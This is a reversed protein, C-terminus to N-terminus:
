EEKRIPLALVFCAIMCIVFGDDLENGIWALPLNLLLLILGYKIGISQLSSEDEAEDVHMPALEPQGFWKGVAENSAKDSRTWTMEQESWERSLRQQGSANQYESLLLSDGLKARWPFAGAAYVISARYDPYARSYTKNDLVAYDARLSDVWCDMLSGIFWGESSEVLWRFGKDVNYLLYETWRSADEDDTQWVLAGTVTWPLREITATGGLELTLGPAEEARKHMGIVTAVDGTLDVQSHCHGCTIQTAAGARYDLPAACGPCALTAVSGKLKGTKEEIMRTDRLLQMKLQPLTTAQGIFLEPADPHDSYDLTLFMQQCRADAVQAQWGDGVSFPLEGEGGICQAQRVDSFVFDRNLHTYSQGPQLGDFAPAQPDQGVPLTLVYQGVSESLWGGRGDDFLLYWENWVGADYRLQIRGVISFNRDIYRGSSTIQLPSYDDLLEAMKGIDRVSDADRLLTSRCYQCVALVSSAARFEVDAGCSPCAIRYM